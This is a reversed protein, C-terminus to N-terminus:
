LKGPMLMDVQHPGRVELDQKLKPLVHQTYRGVLPELQEQSIIQEKINPWKGSARMESKFHFFQWVYFV